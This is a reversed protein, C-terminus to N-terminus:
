GEYRGLPTEPPYWTVVTLRWWVSNDARSGEPTEWMTAVRVSGEHLDFRIAEVRGIRVHGEGDVIGVITGVTPNRRFQMTRYRIYWQRYQDVVWPGVYIILALTVLCIAPLWDSM